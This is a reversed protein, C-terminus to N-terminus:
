VWVLFYPNLLNAKNYRLAEGNPYQAIKAGAETAVIHGAATDWEMTPAFRPYLHARGEALLCFKLSSGSSVLEVQGYRAQQAAIYQETDANLHSRSAVIRVAKDPEIPDILLKQTIGNQIRYSGEGEIAYYMTQTVPVYVVGIVPIGQRVLAINVTFEGNRKVFEKTGDLPDILWCAQWTQRIAYDTLKSEESIYPIDPYRQTLAAIIIQNAATDAETLPSNDAKQAVDFPQEYIRMIAEGAIQATQLLHDIM